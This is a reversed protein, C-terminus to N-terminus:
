GEVADTSYDLGQKRLGPKEEALVEGHVVTGCDGDVSGVLDACASQVAGSSEGASPEVGVAGRLCIIVGYLLFLVGSFFWISIEERM